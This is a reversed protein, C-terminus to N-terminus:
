VQFEKECSKCVHGNYASTFKVNDYQGCWDCWDQKGKNNKDQKWWDFTLQNTNRSWSNYNWNKYQSSKTAEKYPKSIIYDGHEHWDGYLIHGYNSHALFLRSGDIFKEILQKTVKSNFLNYAPIDSLYESAFRVTDSVKAEKDNLDRIVGNHMVYLTKKSNHASLAEVRGVEEHVIFPHTTKADIEGSTAWRLHYAIFDKESLKLQKITQHLEIESMMGKIMQYNDSGERKFIIGAGHPNDIWVEQIMDHSVLPKNNEKIIILCM